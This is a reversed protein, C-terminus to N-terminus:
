TLEKEGFYKRARNVLALLSVEPPYKFWLVLDRAIDELEEHANRRAGAVDLLQFVDGVELLSPDEAVLEKLQEERYREYQGPTKAEVLCDYRARARHGQCHPISRSLAKYNYTSAESWYAAPNGCYKCVEPGDKDVDRALSRHTKIKVTQQSM